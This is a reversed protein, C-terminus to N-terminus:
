RRNKKQISTQVSLIGRGPLRIRGDLGVRLYLRGSTGTSGSWTPFLELTEFFERNVREVWVNAAQSADVEVIDTKLGDPLRRVVNEYALTDIKHGRAGIAASVKSLAGQENAM